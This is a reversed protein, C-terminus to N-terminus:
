AKPGDKQPSGAQRAHAFKRGALTAPILMGLFAAHYWVPMLHWLTSEVLAGSALLALGLVAVPLRSASRAVAAAVYGASLSCILGLILLSLLPLWAQVPQTADGPLLGAATL